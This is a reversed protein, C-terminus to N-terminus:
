TRAGRPVEELVTSEPIHASLPSAKASAPLSISLAVPRTAPPEANIHTM